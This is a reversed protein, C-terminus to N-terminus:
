DGNYPAGSRDNAVNISPFRTDRWEICSACGSADPECNLNLEKGTIVELKAVVPDYDLDAPASDRIM